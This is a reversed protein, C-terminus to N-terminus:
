SANSDAEVQALTTPTVKYLSALMLSASIWILDRARRIVATAVGATAVGTLAGVGIFFAGEQTGLGAPIFFTLTRVLQVMCEIMWVEQFSLPYGILQLILWVEVVGFVWNCMAFILSGSLRWRHTSYFHEFQRDIDEAAAIGGALKQGFRTEGLKRAVFTSLRLRQMLFFVIASFVIFAFGAAAVGKHSADIADHGMSLLLGVGVFVVLTFMSTTKAIVLSAGSDRLAIQWNVKLLWAKIPEGGLSATPTINNYAEGIMRVVFTRRAWTLNIPVAPLALQWSIADAGFYLAYVFMVALMGGTGVAAVEIWLQSLDTNAIVLALLVIGIGLFILKAFKLM